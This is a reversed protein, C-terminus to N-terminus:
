IIEVHLRVHVHTRMTRNPAPCSDSASTVKNSYWELSTLSTCYSAHTWPSLWVSATERENESDREGHTLHHLTTPAAPLRVMLCCLLTCKSARKHSRWWWRWVKDRCSYLVCVFWCMWLQGTYSSMSLHWWTKCANLTVTHWRTDTAARPYM